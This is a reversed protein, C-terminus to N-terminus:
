RQALSEVILYEGVTHYKGGVPGLGDLTPINMAATWNGDSGGGTPGTKVTLGCDAAAAIWHEALVARAPDGEPYPPRNLGGGVEIRAGALAPAAAIARVAADVRPGDEPKAYRVDIAAAADGPVINRKTGGRITGVNLTLGRSYDTL